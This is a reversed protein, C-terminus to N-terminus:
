PVYNIYLYNVQFVRTSVAHQTTIFGRDMFNLHNQNHISSSVLLVMSLLRKSWSARIAKQSTWTSTSSQEQQPTKLIASDRRSCWLIFDRNTDLWKSVCLLYTEILKAVWAKAALFQVSAKVGTESRLSLSYEWEVQGTGRYELWIWSSRQWNCDDVLGLAMHIRKKRVASLKARVCVNCSDCVTQCFNLKSKRKVQALYRGYSEETALGGHKIVWQM